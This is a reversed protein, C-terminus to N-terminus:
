LIGNIFSSHFSLFVVFFHGVKQEWIEPLLRHRGALSLWGMRRVVVMLLLLLGPVAHDPGALAAHLEEIPGRAVVAGGGRGGARRQGDLPSGHEPAQLLAGLLQEAGGAGQVSRQGVRLRIQPSFNRFHQGSNRGHM